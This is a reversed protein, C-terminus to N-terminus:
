VYQEVLTNRFIAVTFCDNYVKVIVVPNREKKASWQTNALKASSLSHVKIINPISIWVFGASLLKNASSRCCFFIVIFNFWFFHVFCLFVNSLM